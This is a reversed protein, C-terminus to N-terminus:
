ARLMGGSCQRDTDEDDSADPAEAASHMRLNYIRLSKGAKVIKRVTSFQDTNTEDFNRRKEGRCRM